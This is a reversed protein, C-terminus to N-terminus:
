RFAYVHHGGRAPLLSCNCPIGPPRDARALSWYGGEVATSFLYLKRLFGLTLAMGIFSLMFVTMSVALFPHKLGLGAYDELALGKSRSKRSRNGGGLRWILCPLIDGSLVAYRGDYRHSRNQISLPRIGYAPLGVPRYEFLGVRM